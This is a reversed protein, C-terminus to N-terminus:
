NNVELNLRKSWRIGTTPINSAEFDIGDQQKIWDYGYKEDESMAKICWALECKVCVDQSKSWEVMSKIVKVSVGTDSYIVRRISVPFYDHLRTDDLQTLDLVLTHLRRLNKLAEGLLKINACQSIHLFSINEGTASMSEFLVRETLPTVFSLDCRVMNRCDVSTINIDGDCSLYKLKVGRYILTVM